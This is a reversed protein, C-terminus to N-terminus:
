GSQHAYGERLGAVSAAPLLAQHLCVLCTASASAAGLIASLALLPSFLSIAALILLSPLISPPLAYLHSSATVTSILITWIESTQTGNGERYSDSLPPMTLDPLVFNLILLPLLLCPLRAQLLLAVVGQCFLVSVPLTFLLLLM